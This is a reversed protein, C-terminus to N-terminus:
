AGDGNDDPFYQWVTTGVFFTHGGLVVISGNFEAMSTAHAIGMPSPDALPQFHVCDPAFFVENTFNPQTGVSGNAVYCGDQTALVAFHTRPTFGLTLAERTWAVGDASSWIDAYEHTTEAATKGPPVSKVGGGILYIRGKFWVGGHILGRGEYPAHTVLERWAGGDPSAWVDNLGETGGQGAYLIIQSGTSVANPTYRTGFPAAAASLTWNVGDASSWSDTLFDGGIVHLRDQHVVWAAGHRGPWPAHELLRKWGYLDATFWVDNKGGTSSNWGGLLYLGGDKALLGTGDRWDWSDLNAFSRWTGRRHVSLKRSWGPILQVDAAQEFADVRVTFARQEQPTGYNLVLTLPATATCDRPVTVYALTGNDHLRAAGCGEVRVSQVRPPPPGSGGGCASLCLVTTLCCLSRISM